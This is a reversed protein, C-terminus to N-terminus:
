RNRCIERSQLDHHVRQPTSAWVGSHRHVRALAMGEAGGIGPLSTCLCIYLFLIMCSYITCINNIVCFLSPSVLVICKNTSLDFLLKKQKNVQLAGVPNCESQQSSGSTKMESQSSHLLHSLVFVYSSTLFGCLGGDQEASAM